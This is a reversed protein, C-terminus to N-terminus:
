VVLDVAMDVCAQAARGGAVFHAGTAKSHNWRPLQPARLLACHMVTCQPHTSTHRPWSTTNHEEEMGEVEAEAEEQRCESVSQGQM